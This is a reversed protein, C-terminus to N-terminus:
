MSFYIKLALKNLLGHYFAQINAALELAWGLTFSFGLLYRTYPEGGERGVLVEMVEEQM